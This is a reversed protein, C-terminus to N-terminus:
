PTQLKYAEALPDIFDQKWDVMEWFLDYLAAYAAEAYSDFKGFDPHNQFVDYNLDNIIEVCDSTYICANDIQEHLLETVVEIFQDIEQEVCLEYINIDLGTECAELLQDKLWEYTLQKNM